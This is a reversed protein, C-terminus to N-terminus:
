VLQNGTNINAHQTSERKNNQSTIKTCFAVNSFVIQVVSEPLGVVVVGKKVGCDEGIRGGGARASLIPSKM